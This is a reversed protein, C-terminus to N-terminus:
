STVRGDPFERVRIEAPFSEFNKFDPWNAQSGQKMFFAAGAGACQARLSEAWLANYPRAGHGSEGGTIVWDIRKNGWADRNIYQGTGEWCKMTQNWWMGFHGCLDIRQLGPENSIFRKAARLNVLKPIDRDAEEQNVVSIGLWVNPCRHSWDPPLMNRVNGIRKTLLLWDLNPTEHILNWLDERWFEPVENDFVDALSMCFVRDRRGALAAAKDWKRPENWYAVSTRHRGQGPGWKVQLRHGVREAYCRDCGPSVKTCGIWGNFTHDTWEIKSDKM